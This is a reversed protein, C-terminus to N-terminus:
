SKDRIYITRCPFPIEIGAREFRKYLNMHLFDLAKLKETYTRVWFILKFNLSSEGFEVFYVSPEPDDLIFECDRMTKIAIEKVREPNSGYAVGINLFVRIRTQPLRYNIVERRILESNPIIVYNNELTRIRTTRLTIGVIDGLYNGIQIRDGVKFPKDILIFFGALINGLTDKAAFGVAFGMVGAGVTLPSVDIGIQDLIIIAGFSILLIKIVKSIFPLAEKDIEARGRSIIRDGFYYLLVDSIKISIYIVIAIAIGSIIGTAPAVFHDYSLSILLHSLALQFGLLIIIYYIPRHIIELIKDDIDSKTKKAIRRFYRELFIYTIRAIFLSALIILISFIIDAYIGLFQLGFADIISDILNEIDFKFLDSSQNLDM